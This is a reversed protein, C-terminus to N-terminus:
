RHKHLESQEQLIEKVQANTLYGKSIAIAGFPVKRAEMLLETLSRHVGNIEGSMNEIQNTHQRTLEQQLTQTTQLCDVKSILGRTEAVMAGLQETIQDMHKFYRQMFAWLFGFGVGAFGLGSLANAIVSEM